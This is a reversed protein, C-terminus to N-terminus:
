GKISGMMVGKVFYKQLFPYTIAIPFLSVIMAANQLTLGTATQQEKFVEVMQANGSELIMKELYEQAQVIERFYFSLTDLHHAKQIYLMNDMWANWHGVAIFLCVTAMVPKSVPLIIRFFIRLYGAGDIIASEELARPIERFFSMIIIVNFTSFLSPLIYVLFHDILGLDRILLYSPILGGNFYMPIIILVMYFKRFALNPKSVVYAFVATFLLATVTGIVTRIVTVVAAMLFDPSSLISSYNDLTFVRPWFYIGGAEADRGNNFSLAVTNLLPFVVLLIFATVLAYIIVDVVTFKQRWSRNRTKTM